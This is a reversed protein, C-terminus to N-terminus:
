ESGWVDSLDQTRNSTIKSWHTGNYRIITGSDGVAFVNDSASGWISALDSYIVSSVASWTAGDYRLIIGPYGM